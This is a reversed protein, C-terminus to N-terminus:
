GVAWAPIFIIKNERDIEFEGRYIYYGWKAKSEQALFNRLNHLKKMDPQINYTIEFPYIVPKKEVIFDIEKGSELRWFYIESRMPDRALWVCLENLFWNELRHGILGSSVLLSLQIFGTLTAVLGNNLLYGKPSKVLRKVSCGIYPYIDRYLLTAALYGRYKKLTDRTCGLAQIILTDDRLSGTQEAIVGMLNRYLPLNTVTEIARVDKELYTQLYNNLYTLKENSERNSLIEPLGGWVLQEQLASELQPRYPKLEHVIERMHEPSGDIRDFLSLKSVRPDQYSATERLSFEQLHHLEIRGALTEASLQHLSLVASGTLIFKIKEQDKYRDYLIKVADFVAPCKQAEDIIVWIKQGGIRLGAGEAILDELEQKDVRMRQQMEDMNLFVWTHEPHQEAYHVLFMTKGVRRPGLIATIYSRRISAEIFEKNTRNTYM